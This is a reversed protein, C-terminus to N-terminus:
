QVPAYEIYVRGALGTVTGSAVSLTIWDNSGGNEDVRRPTTARALGATTAVSQGSILTASLTPM